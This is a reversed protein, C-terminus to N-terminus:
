DGETLPLTITVKEKDRIKVPVGGVVHYPAAIAFDYGFAYVYYKGKYVKLSFKGDKDSRVKSDYLTTDTGPFEEANYKIFVSANAIVKSHHVTVGEITSNGGINNKKCSVAMLVLVALILKNQTVKM